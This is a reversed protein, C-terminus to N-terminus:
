GDAADDDGHVKTWCFAALKGDREHLRFGRSRVVARAERQQLTDLTWGGQEPHDHFAANNVRM